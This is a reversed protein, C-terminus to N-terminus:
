SAGMNEDVYGHSLDCTVVEAEATGMDLDVRITLEPAQAVARAAEPDHAAPAGGECVVVDGYAIRVREPDLPVHSAGLAAMVRGWYPEGGYLACRVLDSRAVSKAAMVAESENAAGTVRIRALRTAGEGDRVIQEALDGCVTTVAAEFESDAVPGAQGSALLIVTDNTSTCADICIRNFTRDVAQVLVQQLAPADVAADTALVALMTAMDPEMMGAGKAMGGVTAGGARALAEKPRTDTTMIARAAELGAEASPALRSRLEPTAKEILEVPLPIGILGTSCVLFPGDGAAAAMRAAAQDGAPGTAANANGSSLIVGRVAGGSEALVRKSYRVPAAQVRNRTFVAAAPVPRGAEVLALDLQGGSKIGCHIGAAQFGGAATM